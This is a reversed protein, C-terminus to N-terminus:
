LVQKLASPKFYHCTKCHGLESHYWILSVRLKLRKKKRKVDSIVPNSTAHSDVVGGYKATSVKNSRQLPFNICWLLIFM